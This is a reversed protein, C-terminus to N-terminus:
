VLMWNNDLHPKKGERTIKINKWLHRSLGGKRQQDTLQFIFYSTKASSFFKFSFFFSSGILYLDRYNYKLPNRQELFLKKELLQTLIPDSPSFFINDSFWLFLVKKAGILLSTDSSFILNFFFCNKEKLFSSQGHWTPSLNIQKLDCKVIIQIIYPNYPFM